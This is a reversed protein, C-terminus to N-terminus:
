AEFGLQAALLVATFLSVLVSASSYCGGLELRSVKRSRYNKERTLMAAELEEEIDTLLLREKNM